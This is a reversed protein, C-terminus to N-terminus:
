EHSDGKQPHLLGSIQPANNQLAQATAVVDDLTVKRIGAEYEKMTTVDVDTAAMYGVLEAINDPNDELYVLDALLKQKTMELQENNLKNMAYTWARNLWFSMDAEKEDTPVLVIEFTGYSRSIPNYNVDIDLARKDQIVIKQYLPSNKDGGMYEALVELAYVKEKDLNFSPAAYINVMRGLKVDPLKMSLSAKYDEPLHPLAPKDSSPQAAIKGYYKQALEEAKQPTIDGSLVLVANNPAYHRQYFDVADERALSLIEVDEGTVQRAYPHNQWLTKKLAEYFKASPNNDIRQKREQFVIQREAEFNEDSIQLNEMRDAELAMATELRSVDILQHYATVDQTTFANSIAGNQEMIDNFQNGSFQSTGRFMLHELLHALGGKGITEDISGVKYFLMQKVIPAKHNEIVVVQLGNDLKFQHVNEFYAKAKAAFFGCFCVLVVLIKRLTNSM